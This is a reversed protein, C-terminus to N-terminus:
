IQEIFDNNYEETNEIIAECEGALMSMGDKEIFYPAIKMYQYGKKECSNIYNSTAKMIIEPTFESHRELFKRLKKKCGSLDSKIYYGGSKVGKPFMNFWDDMWDKKIPSEKKTEVFIRFKETIQLNEFVNKESNENIIWGDEQLKTLENITFRGHVQIYDILTDKRNKYIAWCILFGNISLKAANLDCLDITLVM